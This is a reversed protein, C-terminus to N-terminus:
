LANPFAGIESARSSLIDFYRTSRKSPITNIERGEAVSMNESHLCLAVQTGNCSQKIGLAIGVADVGPELSVASDQPSYLQGSSHVGM